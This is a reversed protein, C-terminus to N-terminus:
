RDSWYMMRLARWIQFSKKTEEVDRRHCKKTFQLIHLAKSFCGYTQKYINLEKLVTLVTPSVQPKGLM